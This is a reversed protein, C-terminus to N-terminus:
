EFVYNYKTKNPKKISVTHFYKSFGVQVSHSIVRTQLLNIHTQYLFNTSSIRLTCSNFPIELSFINRLALHNHWAAFHILPNESGQGIEYYSQGFEPSFAAGVLSANIQYRLRFPQQKIQFPYTAIASLNLNLNVKADIPNNSNRRNYVAGALLDGQLGAFIQLKQIPLFRYYLGYDYELYGLNSNASGPPNQMDAFELNFLSQSIIRGNWLRTNKVQEGMLNLNWGSYKLPSLYTDYTSTNGTGLSISQYTLSVPAEEQARCLPAITLLGLLPPITKKLLANM